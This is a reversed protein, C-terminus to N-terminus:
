QVNSSFSHKPKPLTNIIIGPWVNACRGGGSDVAGASKLVYVEHKHIYQLQEETEMKWHNVCVKLSMMYSNGGNMELKERYAIARCKFSPGQRSIINLVTKGMELKRWHGHKLSPGQLPCTPLHKGWQGVSSAQVKSHVMDLSHPLKDPIINVNGM